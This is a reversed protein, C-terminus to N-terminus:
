FIFLKNAAYFVVRFKGPPMGSLACENQKTAQDLFLGGEGKTIAIFTKMEGYQDFFQDYNAKTEILLCENSM